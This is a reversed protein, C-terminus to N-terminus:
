VLFRKSKKESLELKCQTSIILPMIAFPFLGDFSGLYPNTAAAIFYCLMGNAIALNTTYYTTPIRLSRITWIFFYLILGVILLTGIIGINSLLQVYTLEYVWPNNKSFDAAGGVGSGLLINEYFVDMLFKAQLSRIGTKEPVFFDSVRKFFSDLNILELCNMLYAVLIVSIISVVGFVFIRKMLLISVKSSIAIRLMMTILPSLIIVLWLVRRGSLFSAILCVVLSIILWYKRFMENNLLLHTMIFPVIFILSATNTNNTQIYGSHIGVQLFMEEVISEPIIKLGYVRQFLPVFITLSIVLGSFVILRLAVKGFEVNSLYVALMMYVFIYVIYLRIYDYIAQEPNGRIVGIICWILTIIVMPLYFGFPSYSYIRIRGMLMGLVIGILVILLLVLRYTGYSQFFIFNAAFFLGVLFGLCKDFVTQSVM